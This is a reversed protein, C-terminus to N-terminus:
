FHTAETKAHDELQIANVDWGLDEVRQCDIHDDPSLNPDIACLRLWFEKSYKASSCDSQEFEGDRFGMTYFDSRGDDRPIWGFVGFWDDSATYRDWLVEPFLNMHRQINRAHEPAIESM